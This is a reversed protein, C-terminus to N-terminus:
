LCSTNVTAKEGSPLVRALALSSLVNFNQFTAVCCSNSVTRRNPTSTLASSSPRTFGPCPRGSGQSKSDAPQLDIDPKLVWEPAVSAQSSAWASLGALGALALLGLVVCFKALNQM